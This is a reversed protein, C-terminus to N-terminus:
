VLFDIDITTLPKIAFQGRIDKCRWMSKYQLHGSTQLVRVVHGHRRVAAGDVHHLEGGEHHPFQGVTPGVGSRGGGRGKYLGEKAQKASLSVSYM